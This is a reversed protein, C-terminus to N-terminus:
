FTICTEVAFLCRIAYVKCGNGTWTDRHIVACSSPRIGQTTQPIEPPTRSAHMGHFWLGGKGEWHALDPSDVEKM